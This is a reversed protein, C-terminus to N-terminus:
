KPIQGVDGVVFATVELDADHLEFWQHRLDPSNSPEFM